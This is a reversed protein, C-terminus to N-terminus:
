PPAARQQRHALDVQLVEQGPVQPVPPVDNAEGLEHVPAHGVPVEVLEGALHRAAAQPGVVRGPSRDVVVAGSSPPRRSRDIGPTPKQPNPNDAAIHPPDLSRYRNAVRRLLVAVGSVGQEFQEGQISEAGPHGRMAPANQSERFGVGIGLAGDPNPALMMVVKYATYWYPQCSLEHCSVGRPL